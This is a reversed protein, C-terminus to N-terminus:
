IHILSLWTNAIEYDAGKLAAIEFSERTGFNYEKDFWSEPDYPDYGLSIVKNIGLSHPIVVTPIGLREGVEVAAVMGDAYHGMVAHAGFLASVAVANEALEPVLSYIDEKRIFEDSGAPIRMLWLNEAIMEVVPYPKFWRALIIVKRGQRAWTKSVELVYYTQGGTDPVGAPPPDGWYGHTSVMVIRRAKQPAKKRLFVPIGHEHFIDHYERVLDLLLDYKSAMRQLIKHQLTEITDGGKKYIIIDNNTILYGDAYKSFLRITPDDEAKNLYDTKQYTDGYNKSM